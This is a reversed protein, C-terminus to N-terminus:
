RKGPLADEEIVLCPRLRVASEHGLAKAAEELEAIFERSKVNADLLAQALPSIEAIM